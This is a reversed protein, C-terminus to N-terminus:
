FTRRLTLGWERPRGPIGKVQGNGSIFMKGYYYATNTLNTGFTDVSWREDPSSWTLRATLLGYSGVALLPTNAADTFFRDQWLYGARLSLSGAHSLPLNYDAWM